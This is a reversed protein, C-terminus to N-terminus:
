LKPRRQLTAELNLPTVNPREAEYVTVVHSSEEFQSRANAIEKPSLPKVPCPRLPTNIQIEDPSLAKALKAIEATYGINAEIFMIQLAIKGKYENRFRKVGEVAMNFHLGAFPRNIRTFLEDNSADLKAIVVDAKMLRRRVDERFMLSANTLVAVPADFISKVAKIAKGLNSALTPEGIGSFTIYDTEVQKALHLEEVLQELSVFEEPEAMLRRTDGLQCYICNFSCVKKRTNLLDIGLSKGLRWSSVPGYVISNAMKYGMVAESVNMGLALTPAPM